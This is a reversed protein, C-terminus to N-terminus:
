PTGLVRDLVEHMHTIRGELRSLRFGPLAPSHLGEQQISINAIDQDVIAGASEGEKIIQNPDTPPLEQDDPVRHFYWLDLISADPNNGHPRARFMWCGFAHSNIAINPFLFFQWDDVLQERTLGSCDIKNAAMSEEILPIVIDRTEQGPKREINRLTEVLATDEGFAAYSWEMADLVSQWDPEYQVAIQDPSGFPIIFYGHGREGTLRVEYNKHNIFENAEAHIYRSHYSEQFADLLTKWNCPVYVTRNFWRYQRDFRYPELHPIIDALYETLPETEQDFCVFVWEGWAEVRVRSLACDADAFDAYTEREPINVLQGEFDWTWGHYPCRLDSASGQGTKIKRGRHLCVNHFAALSGDRKRVIVATYPGVQYEVYDGPNPLDSQVCALQWTKSWLRQVELEHFEASTYRSSDILQSPADPRRGAHRQETTTM